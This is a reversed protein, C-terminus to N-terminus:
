RLKRRSQFSRSSTLKVDRSLQTFMFSPSDNHQRPLDCSELRNLITKFTWHQVKFLTQKVLSAYNNVEGGKDVRIYYNRWWRRGGLLGLRGALQHLFPAQLVDLVAEGLVVVLGDGVVLSEALEEPSHRAPFLCLGFGKGRRM